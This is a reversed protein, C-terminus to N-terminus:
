KERWNLFIVPMVGESYAEEMLSIESFDSSYLLIGRFDQDSPSRPIEPEGNALLPSLPEIDDSRMGFSKM